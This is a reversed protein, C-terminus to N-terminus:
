EPKDDKRRHFHPSAELRKVDSQLSTIDSAQRELMTIARTIQKGLTAHSGFVGTAVGLVAVIATSLPDM